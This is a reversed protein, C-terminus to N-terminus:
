WPWLRLAVLVVANVSATILFTVVMDVRGGFYGALVGM